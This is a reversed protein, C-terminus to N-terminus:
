TTSWWSSPAPPPSRVSSSSSGISTEHGMGATPEDLLMLEPDLALTTALELARKLGYPLDVTLRSAHSALGVRGLLAMAEDDLVHLSRESRWFAFETRLKRQLAIRVNECMSILFVASIQFSRVM